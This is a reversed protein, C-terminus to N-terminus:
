NGTRKVVEVTTAIADAAIGAEDFGVSGPLPVCNREPVTVYEAYGGNCTFGIQDVLNECLPEHGIRCQFCLGCPVYFHVGVRTGKKLSRVGPGVEEIVGAIEHGLVHPLAPLRDKPLLARSLKVDSYCVGCSHVEVLVEGHGPPRVPINEIVPPKGFEHLVAAKM